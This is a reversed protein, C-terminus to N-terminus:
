VQREWPFLNKSTFTEINEQVRDSALLKRLSAVALQEYTVDSFWMDRLYRKTEGITDLHLRSIRKVLLRLEKEPFESIVDVLNVKLADAASLSIGLLTMRLAPQFGVRRILVPMVNSPILGWLTEPLSFTVHQKAIVMDSAAVIGVGGAIVPGDLISVVVKDLTSLRTLLAMYDEPFGTFDGGRAAEKTFEEFDMGSCFDPASSRLVILKIEPRCSVKDLCGALDSLFSRTMTNRQVDLGMEIQAVGDSFTLRISM